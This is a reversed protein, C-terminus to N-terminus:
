SRPQCMVPEVPVSPAAAPRRAGAPAPRAASRRHRQADGGRLGDAHALLEAGHGLGEVRAGRRAGAQHRRQHRLVAEGGARLRQFRRAAHHLGDGGLVVPALDGVLQALAELDGEVGVLGKGAADHDVGADVGARLQARLADRGLLHSRM